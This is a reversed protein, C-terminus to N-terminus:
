VNGATHYLDGKNHEFNPDGVRATRSGTAKGEWDSECGSCVAMGPKKEDGWWYQTEAGARAAYEWEAESPLRYHHGTQESLWEAYATADDWSVKIVPRRGRGWGRDNPLPRGTAEAFRDYEEFTVEYKGIAFRQSITVTHVPLEDKSGGGSLDGMRFEGPEITVMKPVIYGAPASGGFTSAPLMVLCYGACAVLAMVQGVSRLPYQEVPLAYKMFGLTRRLPTALRMLFQALFYLWIWVTTFYTTWVPIALFRKEPDEVPILRSLQVLFTIFKLGEEGAANWNGGIGGAVVIPLGVVLLLFIAGTAVFDALLWGLQGALSPTQQMRQIVWRTELLSVYDPLLNALAAVGGLVLFHKGWGFGSSFAAWEGPAVQVYILTCLLFALLSAISSRFFCRWSLHKKGFVRDFLAAFHAPWRQVSYGVAAPDLGVLWLSLDRKFELSITDDAKWAMALLAGGIALGTTLIEAVLGEGRVAIVVLVVAMAAGVFLWLAKGMGALRTREDATASSVSAATRVTEPLANLLRNLGANFNEHLDLAHLDILLAPLPVKVALVPVIRKGLQQAYLVERRVWVSKNSAPSIVVVVSAASQINSEIEETWHEGGSLSATDMWTSFGGSEIGEKLQAAFAADDHAYSIFINAM